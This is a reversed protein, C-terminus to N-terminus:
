DGPSHKGIGACEIGHLAFNGHFLSCERQQKSETEHRRGSDSLYDNTNRRRRGDNLFVVVRRMGAPNPMIAIVAPIAVAVNPHSSIPNMRRVGAGHPNGMVPLLAIAAPDQNFTVPPLFVARSATSASDASNAPGRAELQM